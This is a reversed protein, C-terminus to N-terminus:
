QLLKLLTQPMQNAQALMATGSQVLIQDRTFNVMESAMNTDQIQANSSTLNQVTVNLNNIIHQFGNQYAGLNARETSVTQIATQVATIAASANNVLDLSGVGLTNADAAGISVDVTQGANAGVQFTGATSTGAASTAASIGVLSAGVASTTFATSGPESLTYTVGSGDSAVSDTFTASVGAATLGAQVAAAYSGPDNYTGAQVTVTTSGVNFTNTGSAVTVPAFAAKASTLVQSTGGYSGDLLTSNGYQTTTAIRNVDAVLQTYETQADQRAATDQSGTNSAQVALQNMRQLIAQTENLAGEATQVVSIGDQANAVAQTLGGIQTQLGESIALGSANDAASNIQYGTSLKQLSSNEAATSQSLANYADMAGINTMIQLGM